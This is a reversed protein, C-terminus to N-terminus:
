SFTGTPVAAVELSLSVTQADPATGSVVPFAPFATGTFVAGTVATLSFALATDPATNAATWMAECLSSAAGWDALLEVALTGSSDITKRVKGDLTQYTERQVDTTLTVSTAQADYAKSDITLALDRGTIVTPM